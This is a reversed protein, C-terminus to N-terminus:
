VNQNENPSVFNFWGSRYAMHFNLNPYIRVYSSTVPLLSTPSSLQM